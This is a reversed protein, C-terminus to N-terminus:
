SFHVEQKLGKQATAKPVKITKKKVIIENGKWIIEAPGAEVYEWDGNDEDSKEFYDEGNQM